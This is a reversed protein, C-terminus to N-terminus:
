HDTEAVVHMYEGLRMPALGHALEEFVQELTAWDDRNVM